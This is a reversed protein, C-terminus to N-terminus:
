LILSYLLADEDGYYAKRRGVQKFEFKEYFKIAKLNSARVELFFTSCAKKQLSNLVYELLNSAIGQGQLCPMVGIILLESEDLITNLVCYGTIQGDVEVLCIYRDNTLAQEFESMKWPSTNVLTELRCVSDIDAKVMARIM